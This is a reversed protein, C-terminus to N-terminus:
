RKQRYRIWYDISLFRGGGYMLLFLLILFYTSAFEIGNQLIIFNGMETLWEYNGHEQLIHRAMTLRENVQESATISVQASSLGFWDFFRATSTSADSPAIAFWGNKLHVTWAAVVMTIALMLSFVRTMVGFLLAFGGVFEALVTLGVLVAPMPLGLGWDANGYWEATSAFNQWKNLGAIIFIPALYIRALLLPIFDLLTLQQIVRNYTISTKRILCNDQKCTPINVSTKSM